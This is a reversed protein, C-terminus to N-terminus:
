RVAIIRGPPGYRLAGVPRPAAVYAGVRVPFDGRDRRDLIRTATRTRLSWGGRDVARKLLPDESGWSIPWSSRALPERIDGERWRLPQADLNAPELTLACGLLQAERAVYSSHLVDGRMEYAGSLYVPQEVEILWAGDDLVGVVALQDHPTIEAFVIEGAKEGDHDVDIASSGLVLDLDEFSHSGSVRGLASREQAIGRKAVIATITTKM